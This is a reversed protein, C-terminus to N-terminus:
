VTQCNQSHRDCVLRDLDDDLRLEFGAGAFTASSDGCFGLLPGLHQNPIERDASVGHHQPPDLASPTAAIAVRAPCLGMGLDRGAGAHCAAELHVEGGSGNGLLVEALHCM